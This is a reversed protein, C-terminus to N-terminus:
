LEFHHRGIEFYWIRWRLFSNGHHWIEIPTHTTRSFNLPQVQSTIIPVSIGREWPWVWSPKLKWAYLTSPFNPYVTEADFTSVTCSILSSAPCPCLLFTRMITDIFGSKSRQVSYRGVWVWVGGGFFFFEWLVEWSLRKLIVIVSEGPM